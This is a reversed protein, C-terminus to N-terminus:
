ESLLPSQWFYGNDNTIYTDKMRRNNSYGLPVLSIRKRNTDRYDSEANFVSHLSCQFWYLFRCMYNDFYFEETIEMKNNWNADENLIVPQSKILRERVESISLLNNGEDKLYVNFTADMWLWKNLTTSYVSNIVHSEFDNENKPYCSIIRSKFGMALYCENLVISLAECNLAKNGNAKSYNYIDIADLESIPHGSGIHPIANHVWTMLNIMKSLEDGNGAISDLKFYQKVMKLPKSEADEYIFDPREALNTYKEYEATQSLIYRFDGLLRIKDMLQIFEKENRIYDLDTDGKADTYGTFGLEVAKDFNYIAKKKDGKLSFICALKYYNNALVARFEEQTGVPLSSYFEIFELVRKEALNYDQDSIAESSKSQLENFKEVLQHRSYETNQSFLLNCWLISFLVLFSKKM